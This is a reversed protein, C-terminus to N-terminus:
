RLETMSLLEEYPVIEGNSYYSYDNAEISEIIPEDNCLYYDYESDYAKRLEDPTDYEECGSIFDNPCMISLLFQRHSEIANDKAYKELEDFKYVGIVKTYFKMAKLRGRM